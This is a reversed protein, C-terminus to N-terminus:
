HAGKGAAPATGASAATAARTGSDLPCVVQKRAVTPPLSFPTGIAPMRATVPLADGHLRWDYMTEFSLVRAVYDRTEYYPITAIFVDPELSGRADVWQQVPIPGANYAASALWPSGDYRMAMAALYRTGLPINVSPNYLDQASGYSLGSERALQAATGPRLQMLGYANAGSHADTQWASEARIIAYAWAPDIGAAQAGALVNQKQALPFRQEYFHSDDDNAFAFVARDYWGDTYALAAIQRRDAEDIDAFARDWERRAPQQMDLAFLEFARTFGPIALLRQQAAADVALSQPCITYPLGARDAALFAYFGTQKGLAAFETQAQQQHGLKQAIRAHWYRWEDHEMQQPTLADIAAQAARWDQQALAARVRWERTTDTQASAPLAALQTVADPEYDTASYLALAALIRDRQVSDFAFRPSLQQWAAEALDDDSRAYRTLAITLAQRTRATDPLKDTGKLFTAPSRLADALRMAVVADADPLWAASQEITSAAHAEAARDIRAWVRQPTLLGQAHALDLVSECEDPLSPK